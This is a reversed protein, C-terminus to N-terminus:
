LFSQNDHESLYSDPFGGRIWLNLPRYEDFIIELINFPGMNVYSIQGALSESSQRLLGM